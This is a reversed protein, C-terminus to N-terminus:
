IAALRSFPISLSVQALRALDLWNEGTPSTGEVTQHIIKKRM